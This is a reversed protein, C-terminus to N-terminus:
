QPQEITAVTIYKRLVSPVYNRTEAFPPIGHWRQVAGPGANYAAL